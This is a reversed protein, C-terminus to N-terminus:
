ANSPCDAICNRFGNECSYETLLGGGLCTTRGSRCCDHCAVIEDEGRWCMWTQPQWPPLSWASSALLLLLAATLKTKKM